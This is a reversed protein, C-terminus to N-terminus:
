SADGPVTVGDGGEAESQRTGDGATHISEVLSVVAIVAGMLVRPHRVGRRSLWREVGTDVKISVVQAAAMAGGAGAVIAIRVPLPSLRLSTIRGRLGEDSTSSADADQRPGIFGTMLAGGATVLLAPGAVYTWRVWRPWDAPRFLYVSLGAAASETIARSTSKM